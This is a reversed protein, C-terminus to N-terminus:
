VLDKKKTEYEEKDIEGRAYRRKLIEIPSDESLNTDGSKVPRNVAAVTVWIILGIVVIWLIIMFGMLGSGGMMGPGMMGWGYRQWGWLSSFVVSLIILVVVIIGGIILMTRLNKDM